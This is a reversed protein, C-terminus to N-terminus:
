RTFSNQGGWILGAVHEGVRVNSVKPGLEEVVGVFDCGLIADDGFANKDLSQVPFYM